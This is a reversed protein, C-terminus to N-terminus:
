SEPTYIGGKFKSEDGYLMAVIQGLRESVEPNKVLEMADLRARNLLERDKSRSLDAARFGSFGSQANGLLEGPGRLLMDQESIYFGDNSRVLVALRELAKPNQRKLDDPVILFCYSQLSSRGVRGRLQHLQALGFRHASAIVMTTAEPVDVGVEILSTSVLVSASDKFREMISLKESDKMRGHLLLVEYPSLEERWREFEIAASDIEESEIAPYVIYVKHGESLEKQLHKILKQHESHFLLKTIVPKRGAPPKEIVSIDLDAYLSLALTRPIPTASMVLTHPFLGKGKKLLRKRQLVGFRHQEDIIALALNAFEVDDSLLAHTGVIVKLTNLKLHKLASERYSQSSSGTLIGVEIGLPKLIKRFSDFHQQALIETPVMVASQYGESAFLYALAIAVITKGSGVDGQLLRNMPKDKSVDKLIEELVREQSPTLEFPLGSRFRPLNEKAKLLKHSSFEKLSERKFILFLQFLMLEDYILRLQSPTKLSNLEEESYFEPFHVQWLSHALNPFHHKIYTSEPLYDCTKGLKLLITKIAKRVFPQLKASPKPGFHYFPLVQGILDQKLLKPHVIYLQNKFSKLRGYVYLTDGKKFRALLRPNKYAFKLFVEKGDQYCELSLPFPEYPSFSTKEIRLTLTVRKDILSDKLDVPRYDEYREPLFWLLDFCKYFGLESLAKAFKDELFEALPSFVIKCDSQSIDVDNIIKHIERLLAHRKQVPLEEFHELLESTAKPLISGIWSNLVKGVRKRRILAEPSLSLLEEVLAKAQSLM